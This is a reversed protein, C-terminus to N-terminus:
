WASYLTGDMSKEESGSRVDSVGFVQGPELEDVSPQEKVEIWTDSKGTIPDLPVKRLYNDDVLAQLSAPYKGKDAFYQDILKRLQFLTDKLVSERAKKMANQYQPLALGVLIGILTFVILMEILTFGKDKSRFM